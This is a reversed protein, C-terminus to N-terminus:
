ITYFEKFINFTKNASSLAEKTEAENFVLQNVTSSFRQWRKVSTQNKSFYFFEQDENNLNPCKKIHKNILNSGLMSGEIVYLAGVCEARTSLSLSRNKNLVKATSPVILSKYLCDSKDTSILPRLVKDVLHKSAVLQQEICNYAQFNRLLFENFTEVNITHDIIYQALSLREVENHISHTNEKLFELMM